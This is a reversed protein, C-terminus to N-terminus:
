HFLMTDMSLIGYQIEETIYEVSQKPSAWGAAGAAFFLPIFHEDSPHATLANVCSNRYDMLQDLDGSKLTQKVWASFHPVYALPEDDILRQKGSFHSLNHTMSGSGVIFVGKQRLSALAKGLAYAQKPTMAMPYSLQMVPIDAQPILHLMPVWVGHDMPRQADLSVKNGAQTLLKAISQSLQPDGAVPYKMEYLEPAFGGFDHWTEPKDTSMVVPNPTMWHPSLMLIARVEYQKKLRMGLEILAAGAQGPRLAFMPSGHSLFATPIPQQSM